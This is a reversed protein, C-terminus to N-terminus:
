TSRNWWSKRGRCETSEVTTCRSPRPIDSIATTSPAYGEGGGTWVTGRVHKGIRPSGIWRWDGHQRESEVSTTCPASSSHSHLPQLHIYIATSRTATSCLRKRRTAGRPLLSFPVDHSAPSKSDASRRQDTWGHSEM